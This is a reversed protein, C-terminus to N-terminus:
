PADLEYTGISIRERSSYRAEAAFKSGAQLGPLLIETEEDVLPSVLEFVLFGDEEGTTRGARPAASVTSTDDSGAPEQAKAPRTRIKAPRSTFLLTVQIEGGEEIGELEWGLPNEISSITDIRIIATDRSGPRASVSRVTAKLDVTPVKLL